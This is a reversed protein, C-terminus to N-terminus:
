ESRRINFRNMQSGPSNYTRASISPNTSIANSLNILKPIHKAQNDIKQHPPSESFLPFKSYNAKLSDSDRALRVRKKGDTTPSYLISRISPSIGISAFMRQSDSLEDSMLFAQSKTTSLPNGDTSKGEDIFKMLISRLIKFRKLVREAQVQETDSYRLVAQCERLMLTFKKFLELRDGHQRLEKQNVALQFHDYLFDGMQIIDTLYQKNYEKESSKITQNLLDYYCSTFAQSDIIEQIANKFNVVEDNFHQELIFAHM